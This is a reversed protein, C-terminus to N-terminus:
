FVHCGVFEWVVFKSMGVVFVFLLGASFSLTMSADYEVGTLILSERVTLLPCLIVPLFPILNEGSYVM